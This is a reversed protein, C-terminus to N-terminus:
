TLVTPYLRKLKIRADASTFQWDVDKQQYNRNDTWVRIQHSLAEKTAYRRGLVQRSLVSLECEAINLWSGHKPTYVFELRNLIRRAREPECVNYLNHNKYASLNDQVITITPADPYLVEAIYIMNAAWTTGRHDDQVLVKRYGGLPEVIMVIDVSGAREYESDEHKVGYRDIYPTRVESVLQKPSEDYCIVPHKIDYPQAYTELVDEM